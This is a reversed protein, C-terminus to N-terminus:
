NGENDCINDFKLPQNDIKSTLVNDMDKKVFETFDEESDLFKLLLLFKCHEITRCHDESNCGFIYLCCTFCYISPPNSNNLHNMKFHEDWLCETDEIKECIYCYYSINKINFNKLNKLVNVVDLKEKFYKKYEQQSHDLTLDMNGKSSYKFSNQVHNYDKQLHIDEVLEQPYLILLYIFSM